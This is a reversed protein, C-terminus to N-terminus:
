TSVLAPVDPPVTLLSVAVGLATGAVAATGSRDVWGPFLSPVVPDWLVGWRGATWGCLLAVAAVTGTTLFAQRPAPGRAVQQAAATSAVVLVAGAAPLLAWPFGGAEPPGELWWAGTIVVALGGAAGLLGLRLAPGPRMATVVVAVAVVVLAAWPPDRDLLLLRGSVTTPTGDVVLGVDFEQIVGDPAAVPDNPAMWHIRHDHWAVRSTAGTPEWEPAAAPDRPGATADGPQGQTATGYRDANAAVAPSRVNREVIGDARIRLYPEEAYGLVVVETGPDASIELFSDGGLVRVDVGDAPPAVEDIVARTSGPRAPEAGASPSWLVAILLVGAATVLVIRLDPGPRRSCM